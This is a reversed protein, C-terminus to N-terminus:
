SSVVFASFDFSSKFIPKENADMARSIFLEYGEGFVLKNIPSGKGKIKRITLGNIPNWLIIENNSGGGSAIM